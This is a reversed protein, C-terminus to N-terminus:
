QRLFMMAKRSYYYKDSGKEARRSPAHNAKKEERKVKADDRVLRRHARMFEGNAEENMIAIAKMAVLDMFEFRPGFLSLTLLVLSQVTKMGPDALGANSRGAVIVDDNM